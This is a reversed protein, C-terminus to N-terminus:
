DHGGELGLGTRLVGKSLSASQACRSPDRISFGAHSVQIKARTLDFAM